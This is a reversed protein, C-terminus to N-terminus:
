LPAYPDIHLRCKLTELYLASLLLSIFQTGTLEFLVDKLDLGISYKFIFPVSFYLSQYSHSIHSLKDTKGGELYKSLTHM